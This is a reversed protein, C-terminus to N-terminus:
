LDRPIRDGTHKLKVFWSSVLPLLEYPDFKPDASSFHQMVNNDGGNWIVLDADESCMIGVLIESMQIQLYNNVNRILYGHDSLFKGILLALEGPETRPPKQIFIMGADLITKGKHGMVISKNKSFTPDNYIKFKM